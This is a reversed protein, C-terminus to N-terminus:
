ESAGSRECTSIPRHHLFEVINICQDTPYSDILPLVISQWNTQKGAQNDAQESLRESLHKDFLSAQAEVVEQRFRRFM